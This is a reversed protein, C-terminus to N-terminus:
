FLSYDSNVKKVIYNVIMILIFCMMSQFFGAAASMGIDYTQMLSRFVYTDIVDTAEYLVGNNGILQYFLEFNGRFIHGVALLVLIITTPILLPLTIYRTRQFINAGDIEAAENLSPDIGMIVALYILSGFGLGKWNNFFTLIYKWHGPENYFDIPAVGFYGLFTNISGFEFNLLNYAMTGAIVWSIFYPLLMTTQILKKLYKGRLEAIIIAVLMQLILGTVIFTMNYALTNKTILWAKGSLFFFDFNKTGIWESMYLGKDFRYQKFAVVMGTMPLYSLIFYFLITPLVMLYLAKNRVLEYSVTDRKM